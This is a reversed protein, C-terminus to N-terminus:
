SAQMFRSYSIMEFEGTQEDIIKIWEPTPTEAPIAEISFFPKQDAHLAKITLMNQQDVSLLVKEKVGELIEDQEKNPETISNSLKVIDNACHSAAVMRVNEHFTFAQEKKKNQGTMTVKPTKILFVAEEEHEGALVKIKIRDKHEVFFANIEDIQGNMLGYENMRESNDSPEAKTLALKMHGCGLYIPANPDEAPTKATHVHLGRELFYNMVELVSPQRLHLTNWDMKNYAAIVAVANGASDGPVRFGVNERNNVPIKVGNEIIYEEERGDICRRFQPTTYPDIEKSMPMLDEEVFSRAWKINFLKEPTEISSMSDSSTTSSDTSQPVHTVSTHLSDTVSDIAYQNELKRVQDTNITNQDLILDQEPLLDSM